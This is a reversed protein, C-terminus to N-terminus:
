SKENLKLIKTFSKQLDVDGVKSQNLNANLLSVIAYIYYYQCLHYMTDIIEKTKKGLENLSVNNMLPQSRLEELITLLVKLNDFYSEKLKKACQIYFANYNMQKGIDIQEKDPVNRYLAEIEGKSLKMYYGGNEKCSKPDLFDAYQVVHKILQIPTSEILDKYNYPVCVQCKGLNMFKQYLYGGVYGGRIKRNPLVTLIAAVINCRVILNETIVKCLEKKSLMCKEVGELCMKSPGNYERGLDYQVYKGSKDRRNGVNMQLPQNVKPKNMNTSPHKQNVKPKNMNTTSPQQNVKPKESNISSPPQQNVKPKESNTSSPPQQNVKPKESNTSSPPQQNVKPKESNTSSPPQQNVKPKESNTSSPPQQNVKPKESNTSSPPKINQVIKNVQTRIEERTSNQEGREREVVDQVKKNKQNIEVNLQRVLQKINNNLNVNKTKNTNSPNNNRNQFLASRLKEINLNDSNLSNEERGNNKVIQVRQDRRKMEERPQSTERGSLESNLRRKFNEINGGGSKNEEVLNVNDKENNGGPNKERRFENTDRLLENIKQIDVYKLKNKDRFIRLDSIDMNETTIGANDIISKEFDINQNWFYDELQKEFGEIFFKEDQKPTYQMIMKIQPVVESGEVKQAMEKLVNVSMKNLNEELVFALDYCFEERLFEQNYRQLLEKSVELIKEFVIEEENIDVSNKKSILTSSEMSNTKTEPASGINGM